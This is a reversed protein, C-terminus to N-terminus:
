QHVNLNSGSEPEEWCHQLFSQERMELYFIMCMKPNCDVLMGGFLVARSEVTTSGIEVGVVM